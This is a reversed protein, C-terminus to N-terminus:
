HGIAGALAPDAVIKIPIIHEALAGKARDRVIVKVNYSGVGLTHPLEIIHTLYFDRRRNRSTDVAGQEPWRKQLTPKDADLWVEVAQAVDVSWRPGDAAETRRQSYGELETYVVLTHTTGALLSSERLPEYQGYGDVKFCLRAGSVRFDRGDALTDAAGQFTSILRETDGIAAPQEALSRLLDRIAVLNKIQRPNLRATMPGSDTKGLVGVKMTDLMALALYERLPTPSKVSQERLAGALELTSTDIREAATLVPTPKPLEAKPLETANSLAIHSPEPEKPTVAAAPAPPPTAPPAGAKTETKPPRQANQAILKDYLKSQEAVIHELDSRSPRATAPEQPTAPADDKAAVAAPTNAPAAQTNPTVSTGNGVTCGACAVIAALLAATAVHGTRSRGVRATQTM